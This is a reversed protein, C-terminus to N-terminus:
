ILNSTSYVPKQPHHHLFTQSSSAKNSPHTSKIQNLYLYFKINKQIDYKPALISYLYRGRFAPKRRIVKCLHPNIKHWLFKMFLIKKHIENTFLQPLILLCSTNASRHTHQNISPNISHQM